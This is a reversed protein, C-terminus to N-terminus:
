IRSWTMLIYDVYRFELTEESGFKISQKLPQMVKAEFDASGAHLIDDVHSVAIGDIDKEDEQSDKFFLYMAPDINSKLCGLDTM